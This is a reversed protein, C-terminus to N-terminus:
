SPAGVTASSPRSACNDGSRARMSVAACWFLKAAPMPRRTPQLTQGARGAQLALNVQSRRLATRPPKRFATRSAARAWPNELACVPQDCACLARARRPPPQRLTQPRQIARSAASISPQDEGHEPEGSVARRARITRVLSPAVRDFRFRRVYKVCECWRDARLECRVGSHFVRRIKEVM